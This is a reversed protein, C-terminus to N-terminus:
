INYTFMISVSLDKTTECKLDPPLSLNVRFYGGTWDVDVYPMLITSNSTYIFGNGKINAVVGIIKKNSSYEFSLSNYGKFFTKKLELNEFMVNPHNTSMSYNLVTQSNNLINYPKNDIYCKGIFKDDILVDYRDRAESNYPNRSLNNLSISKCEQIHVIDVCNWCYVNNIVMDSTGRANINFVTSDVNYLGDMYFNNIRVSWTEGIFDVGILGENTKCNNLYLNNGGNVIWQSKGENCAAITVNNFTLYSLEEFQPKSKQDIFIGAKKCNRINVRELLHDFSSSIYIGEGDCTEIGIDEIKCNLGFYSWNIGRGHLNTGNISFNSLKISYRTHQKDCGSSQIFDFVGEPSFITNDIGDGKITLIDRDIIIPKTIKYNGTPFYLVVSQPTWGGGLSKFAKEISQTDDAKGDGKAGFDKVNILINNAIKIKNENIENKNNSLNKNVEAITNNFEPRQIYEVANLKALLKYGEDITTDLTNVVKTGEYISTKLENIVVIVDSMAKLAEIVTKGKELIDELTEIVNGEEDLLTYIRGAGVVPLGISYYDLMVNQCARSEHFFINGDDRVWYSDETIEDANYVRYLGLPEIVEIGRYEDPIGDLQVQYNKPSIQHKRRIHYSMPNGNKDKYYQCVIQELSNM